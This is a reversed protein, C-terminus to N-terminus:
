NGALTRFLILGTPYSFDLGYARPSLSMRCTKEGEGGGEGEGKCRAFGDSARTEGIAKKKTRTGLLVTLPYAGLVQAWSAMCCKSTEVRPCLETEGTWKSAEKGRRGEEQFNTKVVSM